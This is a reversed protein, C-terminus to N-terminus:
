SLCDSHRFGITSASVLSVTGGAGDSNVSVSYQTTYTLVTTTGGTTVSCKIDEPASLLARFNFTYDATAGDLVFQQKRTTSSVSM